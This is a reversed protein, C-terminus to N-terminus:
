KKRSLVSFGTMGISISSFLILTSTTADGTSFYNSNEKYETEKYSEEEGVYEEDNEEYEEKNKEEDIENNEKKDEENDEGTKEEEINKAVIGYLSLHETEFIICGDEITAPLTQKIKKTNKNVYVIEYHDYGKLDGPLEIKIKMKIGNVEVIELKDNILSIDMFLKIDNDTLEEFINKPEIRLTYNREVEDEFLVSGKIASGDETLIEKTSESTEEGASCLTLNTYNDPNRILFNDKEFNPSEIAQKNCCICDCTQNIGNDSKENDNTIAQIEGNAFIFPSIMTLATCASLIFKNKM